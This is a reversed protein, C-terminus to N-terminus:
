VEKTQEAESRRHDALRLIAEMWALGFWGYRRTLIFFRASIGSAFAALHHDSTARLVGNPGRYEVVRPDADFAVPPLPRCYGHHSAVLHLVLDRDVRSPVPAQEPATSMLALSMLEHRTGRPYGSRLSAKRRTQYDGAPASSKALLSPSLAHKLPDGGHLLLQFRPDAKGIDHWRGACEVAEALDTPLGAGRALAAAWTAVGQLHDDLSVAVGTFSSSDDETTIDTRRRAVVAYYGPILRGEGDVWQPNIRVIRRRSKARLADIAKARWDDDKMGARVTELWTDVAEDDDVDEDEDVAVRPPAPVDLGFDSEIVEPLLRLFPLKRHALAVWGAVDRVAVKASPDWNYATLGGYSAPVVLTDGPKVEHAEMVVESDDGRWRLVPLFESGSEDDNEAEVFPVDPFDSAEDVKRELWARAAHLPVSLAEGATPPFLSIRERLSDLRAGTSLLDAESLDARWVIQVEAVERQAGHLWLAIEPDPEPVPNTQCWSDLHAPLMVPAEAGPPLCEAPCPESALTGSLGVDLDEGRSRLWAWTKALAEGYVADTTEIQDSRILVTGRCDEVDGLRNLRGFRQKLADWSACESVLMDFDLDAGAEICQTAVVITARADSARDPRGAGVRTSIEAQVNERDAPRMRGTLLLVTARDGCRESLLNFV